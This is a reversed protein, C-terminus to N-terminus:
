GRRPAIVLATGSIVEEGKQNTYSVDFSVRGREMIEAVTVTATVTDGIYVPKLYKVSKELFITGKGPLKMGLVTSVFSDALGGHVVRAGFLSGEAAERNIHLENFDGTIGAFQYVDSESVTKAFSASDGKKLDEYYVCENGM